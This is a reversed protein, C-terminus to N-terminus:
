RARSLFRIAQKGPVFFYEGGKTTVFNKLGTITRAGDIMPITYRSDDGMDNIFPDTETELGHFNKALSWTQQIFEFQREIDGNLCIFMLGRKDDENYIRGARLIRHRNTIDIQEKSKPDQSERPNARRIHAGYPCCLGQPDEKGYLFDNDPRADPKRDTAPVYQNRVLSSGDDWRGVMKAGVWRKDVSLPCAGSNLEKVAKDLYKHFGDVDQELQRIVMFSGDKGLDRWSTALSRSFDPRQEPWENSAAYLDNNPDSLSTVTPSQPYTGLGDPYGLIFEGPEIIHQDKMGPKHRGTGRMIPQSVGDVFGFPERIPTGRPPLTEMPVSKVIKGGQDELIKIEEDIIIQLDEASPAYLLLAADVPHKDGGWTWKKPDNVGTDGLIRGRAAMGDIFAHPFSSLEDEGLGLKKLGHASLSCIMASTSGPKYDGYTLKPATLTLWTKAKIVDKPLSLTLCVSHPLPGFGGFLIGQVNDHQLETRPLVDSGFLTLWDRAETETAIGAIGQRIAAHKRILSTTLEPYASYWCWTPNQQRRAWRKFRDGDSAGKLLLNETKPFGLTNSWVGTLGFNAKNIFDELYSEWSGGFNSFFLLRNTGPIIFWRAFHITGISGLFGPRYTTTAAAWIIWFILRITIKRIWGGKMISVGALHNQFAHDERARIQSMKHHDPNTDDPLDSSELNRLKVYVYVIFALSLAAGATLTMIFLAIISMIIDDGDMEMDPLIMLAFLLFAILLFPWLFTRIFHPARSIIGGALSTSKEGNLLASDEPTFAWNHASNQRLSGRVRELIDLASGDRPTDRFIRRVNEALDAEKHIRDVSMGPTGTHVVGPTDFYGFGTHVLHSQWYDKLEGKFDDALEFVPSLIDKTHEALKTLVDKEKGDASLEMVLYPAHDADSPVITISFFHIINLTDIISKLPDKVPNGLKDVAQIAKDEQARSLPAVINIFAHTM